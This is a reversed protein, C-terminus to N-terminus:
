AVQIQGIYILGLLNKLMSNLGYVKVRIGEAVANLFPSTM